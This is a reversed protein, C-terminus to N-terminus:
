GELEVIMCQQHGKCQLNNEIQLVNLRIGLM